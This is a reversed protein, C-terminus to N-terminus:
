HCPVAGPEHRLTASMGVAVGRDVARDDCWMTALASWSAVEAPMAIKAWPPLATSAAIAVFAAIATVPGCRHPM